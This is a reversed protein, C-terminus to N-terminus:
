DQRPPRAAMADVRMRGLGIDRLLRHDLCRLARYTWRRWHWRALAALLRRLAGGHSGGADNSPAVAGQMAVSMPAFDTASSYHALRMRMITEVEIM